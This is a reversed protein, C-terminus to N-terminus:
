TKEKKQFFAFFQREEAIRCQTHCIETNDPNLCLWPCSQQFILVDDSNSWNKLSALESAFLNLTCQQNHQLVIKSKEPSLVNCHFEVVEVDPDRILEELSNWPYQCNPCIIKGESPLVEESEESVESIHKFINVLLEDSCKVDLTKLKQRIKKEWELEELFYKRCKECKELHKSLKHREEKPAVVEVMSLFKQRIEACDMDDEGPYLM